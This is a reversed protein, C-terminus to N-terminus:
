RAGDPERQLLGRALLAALAAEVPAQLAEQLQEAALPRPCHALLALVDRQAANLDEPLEAAAPPLPWGPPQSGEDLQLGEAGLRVAGAHLLAALAEALEARNGPPSALLHRELVPRPGIWDRLTAACEERQLPPEEFLEVGRSQALLRQLERRPAAQASVE